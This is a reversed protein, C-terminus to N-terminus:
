EDNSENAEARLEDRRETLMIQVADTDLTNGEDNAYQECEAVIEDIREDTTDATIEHRSEYCWTVSNDADWEVYKNAAYTEVVSEDYEDNDILRRDEGLMEIVAARAAEMSGYEGHAYAAWDNSTGLWGDVRVEHSMNTHGPETTIQYTHSNCRDSLNPGVYESSIVYYTTTMM